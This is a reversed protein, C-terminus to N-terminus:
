DVFAQARVPAALRYGCQDSKWSGGDSRSGCQIQYGFYNYGFFGGRLPFLMDGEKNLEPTSAGPPDLECDLDYNASPAGKYDLVWEALNGHM